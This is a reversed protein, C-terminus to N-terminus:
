RFVGEAMAKNMADVLFADDDLDTVTVTFNYPPGTRGANLTYIGVLTIDKLAAAVTLCLSFLILGKM